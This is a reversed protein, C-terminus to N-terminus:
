PAVPWEVQEPDVTLEPVDRLAQRYAKWANKQTTTLDADTLVTWDCATLRKSREARLEDWKPGAKDASGDVLILHAPVAPIAPIAPTIEQGQEDLVAPVEPVEPVEAVEQVKANGIAVGEPVELWVQDGGITCRSKFDDDGSVIMAQTEKNVVWWM